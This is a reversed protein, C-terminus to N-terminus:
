AWGEKAETAFQGNCGTHWGARSPDRHASVNIRDIVTLKSGVRGAVHHHTPLAVMDGTQDVGPEQDLAVVAGDVRGIVYPVAEVGEIGVVCRSVGTMDGVVSLGIDDSL